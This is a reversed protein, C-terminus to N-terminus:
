IHILSLNFGYGAFKQVLDFITGALSKDVGKKDAGEAFRLRQQDMEEKLKKGMARRLMDAEGLSYGSLIQAIQMVQEQYIIVGHTEKLVPVLSPHLYDASQRGAKVDCYTPINEMPGPRYLSILAIIDELCTPVMRRLTDRMGQGELQFVGLTQGTALFDFVMKDDYRQTSFDVEIGRDKLLEVAKQIVTLTKLGLFDFKVLGASESWKM